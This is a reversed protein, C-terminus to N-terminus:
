AFDLGIIGNRGRKQLARAFFFTGGKSLVKQLNRLGPAEHHPIDQYTEYGRM